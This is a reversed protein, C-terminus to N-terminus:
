APIVCNDCTALLNEFHVTVPSNTVAAPLSATVAVTGDGQLAPDSNSAVAQWTTPEAASAAWARARLSTPSSNDASFRVNIVADPSYTLGAVIGSALTTEVGGVAKIIRLVVTRDPRLLLKAAYRNDSTTRRTSFYVQVPSGVPVRDVSIGIKGTASGKNATPLYAQVTTGPDLRMAGAYPLVSTRTASGVIAWAGGTNANGWGGTVYRGFEDVAYDANPFFTDPNAYIRDLLVSTGSTATPGLKALL